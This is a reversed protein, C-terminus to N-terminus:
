NSYALELRYIYDMGLTIFFFEKKCSAFHQFIDKKKIKKVSM